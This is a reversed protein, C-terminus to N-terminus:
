KTDLNLYEVETTFSQNFSVFDDFKIKDAKVNLNPYKV